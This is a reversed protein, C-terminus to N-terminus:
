QQGAVVVATSTKGDADTVQWTDGVKHAMSPVCIPKTGAPPAPDTETYCTQKTDDTWTGNITQGNRVVTYAGGPKIYVKTVRGDSYKAVVTNGYMGAMIDDARAGSSLAAGAAAALVGAILTNRM